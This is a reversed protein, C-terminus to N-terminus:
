GTRVGPQSPQWAGAEASLDHVVSPLQNNAVDYLTVHELVNRMSARVAIWVERLPEASGSYAINEPREGRVNALPGDVARIIDAITIRHPSVTLLYGGDAGRITRVLGAVKLQQFINNLFKIPIGQATAIQERRTPQGHAAALEVLARM